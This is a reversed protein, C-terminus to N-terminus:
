ENDMADQGRCSPLHPVHCSQLRAQDRSRAERPDSRCRTCAYHMKYKLTAPPRQAFIPYCAFVTSAHGQPLNISCIPYGLVVIEGM